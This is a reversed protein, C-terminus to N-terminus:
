TRHLVDGLVSVVVPVIGALLFAPLYCVGLPLIVLVELRRARAQAADARVARLDVAQQEFVRTLATGRDASRAAARALRAGGPVEALRGWAVAPVAGRLLDGAIGALREGVPGGLAEGVAAAARDPPAGARLAAAVLDAAIPLDAVARERARRVAVPVRRRLFVTGVVAAVVGCVLGFAGGLLYAVSAGVALGSLCAKWRSM